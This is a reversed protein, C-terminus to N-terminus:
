IINFHTLANKIGDDDVSTTVYDAISKINDDANGMAVGIGAQKLIPIDNGGDGFAMTQAVDIGLFDTMKLLASGKDIGIATVDTFAHYWRASFSGPLKSMIKNELEVSIFPTIQFVEEGDNLRRNKFSYDVKLMKKFIEDVIPKENYVAINDKGVIIVPFGYEDAFSIFRDVEDKPIPNSSVTKDGVFCYAGNTTIYGDILNSIPGLNNILQLPRGTSIIIKVGLLSAQRLAQITSEPIQHTNFSVLTGDIDFFLAKTM